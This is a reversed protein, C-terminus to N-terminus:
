IFIIDYIKINKWYFTMHKNLLGKFKSIVVFNRPTPNSGVVKSGHVWRAVLSSWGAINVVNRAPQFTPNEKAFWEESM